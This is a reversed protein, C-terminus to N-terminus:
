IIEEMTNGPLHKLGHVTTIVAIEANDNDKLNIAIKIIDNYPQLNPCPYYLAVRSPDKKVRFIRVGKRKGSLVEKILPICNKIEPHNSTIHGYWTAKKLVVTKDLYPCGVAFILEQRIETPTM